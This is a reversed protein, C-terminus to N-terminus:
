TNSLHDNEDAERGRHLAIVGKLEELFRAPIICAVDGTLGEIDIKFESLRYSDTGVMTIKGKEM